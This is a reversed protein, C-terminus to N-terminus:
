LYYSRSMMATRLGADHSNAAVGDNDGRRSILIDGGSGAQLTDKGGGGILIDRGFGGVLRNNGTGGVLINNASSGTVSLTTNGSGAFLVAPVSVPVGKANALEEIMDKGAQGYVLLHSGVTLSYTGKQLVGNISVTLTRGTTDPAAPRIIITDNGLTGGAVLDTQTNNVPDPELLVASVAIPGGTAAAAAINGSPDLVSLKVTFKGTATFLHSVVTGSTGSVTQVHGGDGWNIQFTFVTNAGAGIETAALTFSVPQGPAAVTQSPAITASLNNAV